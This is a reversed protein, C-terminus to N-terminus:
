LPSMRPYLDCETITRTIIIKRVEYYIVVIFIWIHLPVFQVNAVDQWDNKDQWPIHLTVYWDSKQRHACKWNKARRLSNNNDGKTRCTDDTLMKEETVLPYNLVFSWLFCGRLLKELIEEFQQSWHLIITEM